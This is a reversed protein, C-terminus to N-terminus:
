AAAWRVKENAGILFDVLTVAPVFRRAGDVTPDSPILGTTIWADATSYISAMPTRSPDASLPPAAVNSTGAVSMNHSATIAGYVPAIAVGGNTSIYGFTVNLGAFAM